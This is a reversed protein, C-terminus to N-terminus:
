PYTYGKDGDAYMMRDAVNSVSLIAFDGFLNSMFQHGWQKSFLAKQYLQQLGVVFPTKRAADTFDSTSFFSTADDGKLTGAALMNAIQEAFGKTLFEHTIDALVFSYFEPGMLKNRAILPHYGAAVITNEVVEWMNPKMRMKIRAFNSKGISTYSSQAAPTTNTDDEYKKIVVAGATDDVVQGYKVDEGVKYSVYDGKTVTYVM